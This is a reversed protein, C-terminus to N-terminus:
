KGDDVFEWSSKADEFQSYEILEECKEEVEKEGLLKKLEMNEEMMKEMEFKNKELKMLNRELKAM